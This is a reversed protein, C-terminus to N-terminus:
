KLSPVKDRTVTFSSNFATPISTNNKQSGAWTNFLVFPASSPFLTSPDPFKSSEHLPIPMTDGVVTKVQSFTNADSSYDPGSLDVIDKGPFYASFQTSKMGNLGSFPMLWIINHLDKTVTLYNFTYKWLAVLEAATGKSWWFWGNPQTEHFIALIIPVNATQMANIQFGVYNLRNLFATNEPTGATVAATLLGSAPTSEACNTGQYCDNKYTSGAVPVGQHYRFMSIGGANWYAIARTIGSITSTDSGGAPYLFDGGLIAPYKLNNSAYWSIDGEPDAWSTEQQGSIVHNGYQSYIFCLLNKAQATPNPSV